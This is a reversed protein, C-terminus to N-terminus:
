HGSPLYAEPDHKLKNKKASGKTKKASTKAHQSGKTKKASTKAQEILSQQLIDHQEDALIKGRQAKNHRISIRREYQSKRFEDHKRDITIRAQALEM